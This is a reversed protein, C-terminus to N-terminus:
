RSVLEIFAEDVFQEVGSHARAQDSTDLLPPIDGFIADFQDVRVLDM